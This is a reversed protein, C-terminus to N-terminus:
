AWVPERIETLGPNTSETPHHVQGRQDKWDKRRRGGFFEGPEVYHKDMPSQM